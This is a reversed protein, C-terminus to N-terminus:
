KKYVFRDPYPYATFFAALTTRRESGPDHIMFSEATFSGTAKYGYVTVWHQGGSAKKAGVIVPKGKKLLEYVSKLYNGSADARVYDSPWYLSGSSSYSLRDAMQPPTIKYGARHSEVMSIATTLCGITGITDGQIGIPYNKWKADYQKYSPVSLVVSPFYEASLRRLYSKAVYGTKNGDYVIGAWESNSKVALIRQGDTLKDKIAYGTGPGTRVNLVGSIVNVEGEVTNPYNRVYDASAYAKKGKEYEVLYWNGTKEEVTLWSGNRASAVVSASTTPSQRLNLRGGETVVKGATKASASFATFVLLVSSVAFFYFIRKMKGGSSATTNAM